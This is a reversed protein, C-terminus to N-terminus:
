RCLCIILSVFFFISCAILCAESSGIGGYRGDLSWMWAAGRM